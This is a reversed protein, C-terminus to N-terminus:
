ENANVCIWFAQMPPIYENLVSNVTSGGVVLHSSGNYTTFVYADSSSKTRYWFSTSISDNTADALFGNEGTWKLYSPYPNGVLNFGRSSGDETRSVIIAVDGSNTTGTVNVTGTTGTTSPSSTAVQVYGKGKVLTGETVLVWAKTAENWGQVSTGRSLWSYDAASVPSSLYWNRGAAVHQQVTATITPTSYSDLITATRNEDSELTIGNTATLTGSSITLKAGPSVTVSKLDTNQNVVLEVGSGRVTLDCTPCNSLSSINTTGSSVALQHYEYAGVSRPNAFQFESKDTTNLTTIGKAKLYSGSGIIWRSLEVTGDAEYGITTTPNFNILNM